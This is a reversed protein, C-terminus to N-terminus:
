GIDKGNNNTLSLVDCDKLIKDELNNNLVFEIIKKVIEKANAKNHLNIMHELTTGKVNFGREYNLKSRRVEKNVLELLYNKEFENM